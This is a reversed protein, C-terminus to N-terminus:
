PDAYIGAIDDGCEAEIREMVAGHRSADHLIGDVQDPSVGEVRVQRCVEWVLYELDSRPEESGCSTVLIAAIVTLVVWRHVRAVRPEKTKQPLDGPM